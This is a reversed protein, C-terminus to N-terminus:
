KSKPSGVIFYSSKAKRMGPVRKVPKYHYYRATKNKKACFADAAEKTKFGRDIHLLGFSHKGM